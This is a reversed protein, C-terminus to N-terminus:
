PRNSGQFLLVPLVPHWEVSAFEEDDLAHCFPWLKVSGRWTCRSSVQSAFLQGQVSAPKRAHRPQKWPDSFILAQSASVYNPFSCVTMLMPFHNHLKSSDMAILCHTIPSSALQQRKNNNQNFAARLILLFRLKNWIVIYRYWSDLIIYLRMDWYCYALFM